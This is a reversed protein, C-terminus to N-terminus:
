RIFRWQAGLVHYNLNFLLFLTTNGVSLVHVFRSRGVYFHRFEKRWVGVYERVIGYDGTAREIKGDSYEIEPM